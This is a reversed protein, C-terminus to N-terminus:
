SPCCSNWRGMCCFSSIHAYQQGGSWEIVLTAEWRSTRQQVLLLTLVAEAPVDSTFCHSHSYYQWYLVVLKAPVTVPIEFSYCFFMYYPHQHLFLCFEFVVIQGVRGLGLDLVSYTNRVRFIWHPLSSFHIDLLKICVNRKWITFLYLSTINQLSAPFKM